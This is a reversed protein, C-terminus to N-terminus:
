AATSGPTRGCSAASRRPFLAFALHPATTLRVLGTLGGAAEGDLRRLLGAVEGEMREAAAVREV